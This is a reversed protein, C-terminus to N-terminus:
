WGEGVGRWEGKVKLRVVTNALPAIYTVVGDAEGSVAGAAVPSPLPPPTSPAYTNTSSGASSAGTEPRADLGGSAFSRSQVTEGPRALPPHPPAAGGRAAALFSLSSRSVAGASCVVSAGGITPPGARGFSALARAASAAAASVAPRSMHNPYSTCARRFSLCRRNFLTPERWASGRPCEGLFITRRSAPSWEGVRM